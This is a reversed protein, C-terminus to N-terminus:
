HTGIALFLTHQGVIAICKMLAGERGPFCASSKIGEKQADLVSRDNLGM